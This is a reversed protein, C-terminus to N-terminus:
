ELIAKWEKKGEALILCIKGGSAEILGVVRLTAGFAPPTTAAMEVIQQSAAAKVPVTAKKAAAKPGHRRSKQRQGPKRSSGEIGHVAERHKGCAQPTKFRRQCGQTAPLDASYCPFEYDLENERAQTLPNIAGGPQPAGLALTAIDGDAM